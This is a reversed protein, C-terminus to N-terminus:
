AVIADAALPDDVPWFYTRSIEDAIAHIRSLYNTLYEHLGIDMVDDIVGFRLEADLLGTRRVLEKSRPGNIEQALRNVESTCAPKRRDSTCPAPMSVPTAKPTSASPSPKRRLM